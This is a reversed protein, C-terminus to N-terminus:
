QRLSNHLVIDNEIGHPERPSLKNTHHKLINTIQSQKHINDDLAYQTTTKTKNKNTKHERYQWNKQITCKQSGMRPGRCSYLQFVVLRVKFLLRNIIFSTVGKSFCITNSSESYMYYVDCYQCWHRRYFLWPIRVYTILVHYYMTQKTYENISLCHFM